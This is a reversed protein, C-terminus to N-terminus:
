YKGIDHVMDFNCSFPQFCIEKGLCHATFWWATGICIQNIPCECNPEVDVRIISSSSSYTINRSGTTGVCGSDFLLTERNWVKIRDKINYTEYEFFFTGHMAGMDYRRTVPTDAGAVQQGNCVTCTFSCPNSNGSCVDGCATNMQVPLPLSIRNNNLITYSNYNTASCSDIMYGSNTLCMSVPPFIPMRVIFSGDPFTHVRTVSNNTNIPVVIISDNNISSGFHVAIGTISNSQNTTNQVMTTAPLYFYLYNSRGAELILTSNDISGTQQLVSQNLLLPSLSGSIPIM